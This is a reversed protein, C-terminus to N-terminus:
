CTEGLKRIAERDAESPRLDWITLVTAFQEGYSCRYALNAPVWDAPGKDGKQRNASLAVAILHGRYRLDNAYEAKKEKSWSQGGHKAAWGLPVLHDVDLAKPDTVMDPSGLYPEIWVGKVVLCGLADWEVSSPRADRALVAQRVSRCPHDPVDLWHRWELRDYARGAAFGVATWVLLTWVAAAWGVRRIM